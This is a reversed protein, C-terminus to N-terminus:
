GGLERLAAQAAAQEMRNQSDAGVVASEMFKPQGNAHKNYLAEHQWPAYVLDTYLTAVVDDPTAESVELSDALVDDDRPVLAETREHGLEAQANVAAANARRIMALLDGSSVIDTM